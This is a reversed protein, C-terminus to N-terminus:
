LKVEALLRNDKLRIISIVFNGDREVIRAHYHGAKGLDSCQFEKFLLEEIEKESTNKQLKLQEIVNGLVLIAKSENIFTENARYVAGVTSAFAAFLVMTVALMAVIEMMCFYQKKFKSM